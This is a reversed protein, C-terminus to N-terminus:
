NLVVWGREGWGWPPACRSSEGCSFAFLTLLFLFAFKLIDLVMRSLTVQLPGLHPNISFIYVLKLSSFFFLRPPPPINFRGGSTYLIGIQYFSPM